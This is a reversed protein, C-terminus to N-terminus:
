EYKMQGNQPVVEIWIKGPALKLPSGDGSVWETQSNVSAKRWVGLQVQGRSFVAAEGGGLTDIALRGVEDLVTERVRQVIITDAEIPTGNQDLHQGEIQWRAYRGTSTNYRWEARYSPPLFSATVKTVCDHTCWTTDTAFTWRARAPESSGKYDTWAKQWLNSSIYTNHPARRDTSRWFYWGRYMENLDLVERAEILELADPSGGVHAYLPQSWEAWWDLFYPRASRVPGVKEVKAKLPFLAMFRTYNAEVPAEYVIEAAALGSQPRADVHNEIMVTVVPQDVLNKESVCRGNLTSRYPCDPAIVTNKVVSEREYRRAEQGNWLWFLIGALLVSSLASLGIIQQLNNKKKKM